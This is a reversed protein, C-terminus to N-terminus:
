WRRAFAGPDYGGRGKQPQDESQVSLGYPVKYTSRERERGEREQLEKAAREAGSLAAGELVGVKRGLELDKPGAAHRADHEAGRGFLAMIDKMSLEAVGKGSGGEVAARALERKREQLALIREEVSDRVTLKYVRVDRTQNLRHVRDIAQEEVFPNWFPELIVVRDAATLNLGLSGCRLSCLLIRVSPDHRLSQLSAERLPNPMSGDYRALGATPLARRLYPTLLDLMTTFESFVILKHDSVEEKLLTLLRRIKTSPPTLSSSTTAKRCPGLSPTDTTDTASDSELNDPDSTQASYYHSSPSGEDEDDAANDSGNLWIGGGEADEDDAGGAKGFHTSRRESKPVVWDANEDEEDSEVIRRTHMGRRANQNRVPPKRSRQNPNQKGKASKAQANLDDECDECRIEGSSARTADLEVQCIDCKKTEVSLSGFTDAVDDVDEGPRTKPQSGGTAMTDKEKRLNGRILDPHNCTQRLRLLLVLAGIYDTRAGGMMTELSRETRAALRDYFGRENESFDAVITEVQRSVIKFGEQKTKGDALHGKGFTLAGEQRLVDKTRRKMFAKLFYQLRKMAIGGRGNKMPGGIQDKWNRLDEYPKIQLFHILSQLEDLNNQMPTGTLCWRYVAKLAYAAKTMKATRNKISHAEDLIIRYWHVGFAGRKIGSDKDSSEEHESTLTQYTTIVMDYRKLDDGRKTRSPGHHVLVKLKRDRSVKDKIESEWQKILALPAVVLTGKSTAEPIKRNPNAALEDKSPLRNSMVLALAQITKGLGMQSLTLSRPSSDCVCSVDDALIGGKPLVGNRKREGIEKDLMWAVGNIQHPLLKVILGEVSGDEEEEEQEEHASEKKPGKGAVNLGKVKDALEDAASREQSKQQRKRLRTKPKDDEDEEFAGELLNKINESAQAADVYNNPDYSGFKNIGLAKDPNFGEEAVKSNSQTLDIPNSSTPQKFATAAQYGGGM